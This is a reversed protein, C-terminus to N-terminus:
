RRCMIQRQQIRRAQREGRVCGGNDYIGQDQRRDMAAETTTESGKSADHIGLGRRIKRDNDSIGKPRRVREVSVNDNDIGEAQLCM